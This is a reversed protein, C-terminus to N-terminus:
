FRRPQGLRTSCLRGHAQAAYNLEPVINLTNLSHESRAQNIRALIYSPWDSPGSPPGPPPVATPEPEPAPADSAPAASEAPSDPEIAKGQKIVRKYIKFIRQNALEAIPREANAQLSSEPVAQELWDRWARILERFRKSNLKRKLLAHAKKHQLQLFDHFPDLDSRIAAPLSRRYGDFKLLYVDMDRTTRMILVFM